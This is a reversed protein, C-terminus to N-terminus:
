PPPAGAGLKPGMPSSVGGIVMPASLVQPKEDAYYATFRGSRIELASARGGFVSKLMGTDILFVRNGFRPNIEGKPQPTHGAVLYRSQLRGLMAEVGSRLTEESELALGRYWIPSDPSNTFWM